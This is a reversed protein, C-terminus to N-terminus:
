GKQGNLNAFVDDFESTDRKGKPKAKVGFPQSKEIKKSLTEIKESMATFLKQIDSEVKVEEKVVEEKPIEVKIEEKVEEEQEKKFFEIYDKMEEDNLAQTSKIAKNLKNM